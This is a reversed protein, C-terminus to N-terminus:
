AYLVGIGRSKQQPSSVLEKSLASQNVQRWVRWVEIQKDTEDPVIDHLAVIGGRNLLPRYNRLDSAAGSYTHDGDIFLFDIGAGATKRAWEQAEDEHSNGLLLNLCVDFDEAWAFWESHRVIQNTGWRSPGPLDIAMIHAGPEAHKMWQYLSGGERCGIELVTRPKLECYMALLQRFEVAYQDPQVPAAPDHFFEIV